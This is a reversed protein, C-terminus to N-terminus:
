SIQTPTGIKPRSVTFLRRNNLMNRLHSLALLRRRSRSIKAFRQKTMVWSSCASLWAPRHLAAQPWPRCLPQRWVRASCWPDRSDALVAPRGSTGCSSWACPSPALRRGPCSGSSLSGLLPCVDVICTNPGCSCQKLSSCQMETTMYLEFLYM